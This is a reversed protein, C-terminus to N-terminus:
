PPTRSRRQGRGGAEGGEGGGVEGMAEDDGEDDDARLRVVSEVFGYTKETPVLSVVRAAGGAWAGASSM